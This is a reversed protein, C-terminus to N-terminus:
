VGKGNYEDLRHNEIMKKLLTLNKRRCHKCVVARNGYRGYSNGNENNPEPDRHCVVCRFYPMPNKMKLRRSIVMKIKRTHSGIDALGASETIDITFM